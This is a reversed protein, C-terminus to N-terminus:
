PKLVATNLNGARIETLMEELTKLQKVGNQVAANEGIRGGIQQISDLRADEKIGGKEGPKAMKSVRDELEAVRAQARLNEVSGDNNTDAADKKAQALEKQLLALRQEEPLRAIRRDEIQKQLKAVEAAEKNLLSEAKNGGGDEDAFGGGKMNKARQENKKKGQELNAERLAENAAATEATAMLDEKFGAGGDLLGFKAGEKAAEIFKGDAALAAAAFAHSLRHGIFDSIMGFGRLMANIGDMVLVVLPAFAAKAAMGAASMSDGMEDLKSITEADMVVGLAHAEAMLGQLGQQFMPLMEQGARGLTDNIDAFVQATMPMDKLNNALQMFLQEPSLTRLQAATIGLREFAGMKDDNGAIADAAAMSAKKIGGLATEVSTGTQTAAFDLAQVTDTTVSFRDALDTVRGGHDVISRIGGVIAGVGVMGAMAGAIPNAKASAKLEAGLTSIKAKANNVAGMFGTSDLGLKAMLSIM